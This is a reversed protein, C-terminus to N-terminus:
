RVDARIGQGSHPLRLPKPRRRCTTSRTARSPWEPRRGWITKVETLPFWSVYWKQCNGCYLVEGEEKKIIDSYEKSPIQGSLYRTITVEGFGLGDFEAPSVVGAGGLGDGGRVGAQHWKIIMDMLTKKVKM